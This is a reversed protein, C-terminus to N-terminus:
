RRVPPQSRDDIAQFLQKAWELKFPRRTRERELNGGALFPMTFGVVRGSEEHLVVHQIPVIHPHGLLGAMIQISFWVNTMEEDEEYHKFVLRDSPSSIPAVVDTYPGFRGREILHDRPITPIKNSSPLQYDALPAYYTGPTIDRSPDSSTSVITGDAKMVVMTADPERGSDLLAALANHIAAYPSYSRAGGWTDLTADDLDVIKVQLWRRSDGDHVPYCVSQLSGPQPAPPTPLQPFRLEHEEM